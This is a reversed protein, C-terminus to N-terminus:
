KVSQRKYINILDQGINTKDTLRYGAKEALHISAAHGPEIICATEKIPLTKDSWAHIAALTEGAYGKNWHSPSIVWGAEPIGTFSPAIDRLGEMFGAEGILVGTEKLTIAWYGYGLLAWGGLTRQIQKWIDQRSRTQNGIFRTTRPDAWIAALADLDALAHARLRLRATELVPIDAAQIHGFSKIDSM